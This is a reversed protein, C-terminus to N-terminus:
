LRFYQGRDLWSIFLSPWTLKSHSTLIGLFWESDIYYIIYFLCYIYIIFLIYLIFYFLIIYCLVICYLIIYSLILYYWIFMNIIERERYIYWIDYSYSSIMRRKCREGILTLTRWSTNRWMHQKWPWIESAKPWTRPWSIPKRAMSSQM